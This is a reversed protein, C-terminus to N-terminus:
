VRVGFSVLKEVFEDFLIFEEFLFIDFEVIFEGM